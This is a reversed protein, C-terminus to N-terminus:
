RDANLQACFCDQGAEECLGAEDARCCAEPSCAGDCPVFPPPGDEEAEEDLTDAIPLCFGLENSEDCSWGAPCKGCPFLRSDDFTCGSLLSLAFCATACRFYPHRIMM